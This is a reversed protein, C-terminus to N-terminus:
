FNFKSGISGIIPLEKQKGSAANIIGIIFMIFCFINVIPALVLGLFPIVAVIMGVVASAILALGQKIHFKVYPDNSAGTVFPIVILPGFYSLIAMSTNSGPSQMPAPNSVQQDQPNM